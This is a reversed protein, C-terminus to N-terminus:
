RATWFRAQFLIAIFAPDADGGLRQMAQGVFWGLNAPKQQVQAAKDANAAILDDVVKLFDDTDRAIVDPPSLTCYVNGKERRAYVMKLAGSALQRNIEEFEADMEGRM